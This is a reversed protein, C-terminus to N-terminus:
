RYKAFINLDVELAADPYLLPATCDGRGQGWMGQLTSCNRVWEYNPRRACATSLRQCLTACLRAGVVIDSRAGTQCPLTNDERRKLQRGGPQLLTTKPGVTCLPRRRGNAVRAGQREYTCMAQRQTSTSTKRDADSCETSSKTMM